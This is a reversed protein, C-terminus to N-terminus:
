CFRTVKSRVFGFCARGFVCCHSLQTKVPQRNTTLAGILNRRVLPAWGSGSGSRRRGRLTAGKKLTSWWPQTNIPARRAAVSCGAKGNGIRTALPSCPAPFDVAHRTVLESM